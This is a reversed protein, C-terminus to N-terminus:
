STLWPIAVARRSDPISARYRAPPMVPQASSPRGSRSFVFDSRSGAPPSRAGHGVGRDSRVSPRGFMAVADRETFGKPDPQAHGHKAEATRGPLDRDHVPDDDVLLFPDALVPEQMRQAVAHQQRPRFGMLQRDIDAPQHMAPRTGDNGAPKKDYGADARDHREAIDVGREAAHRRNHRQKQAELRHHERNHKVRHLPDSATGQLAPRHEDQSREGENTNEKESNWERQDHDRGAHNTKDRRAGTRGGKLNAAIM